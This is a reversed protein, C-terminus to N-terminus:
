EEEKTIESIKKKIKSLAGSGPLKIEIWETPKKIRDYLAKWISKKM